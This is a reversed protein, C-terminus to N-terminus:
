SEPGAQDLGMLLPSMPLINLRGTLDNRTIYVETGYVERINAYTLVEEAKGMRYVRGRDLMILWDCYLSALNLDHLVSVVTLGKELNLGKILDYIEVQHRIDLFATPEDLLMVGAQQALARAIIVMQKEGGSLEFFYREALDATGTLEMARQAVELDEAGEFRFGGLYPSRGMLVVEAVRFPFAISTEQPVVAVEKAMDRVSMSAIEKGGLRISGEEPKLLKSFLKLLTTKGSGNPGVIGCFEGAGVRFSIGEIFPAGDYSFALDQVEIMADM